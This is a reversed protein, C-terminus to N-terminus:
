LVIKDRLQYPVHECDLLDLRSFLSDATTALINNNNWLEELENVEGRFHNPLQFPPAGDLTQHVKHLYFFKQALPTLRSVIRDRDDTNELRFLELILEHSLQQYYEVSDNPHSLSSIDELTISKLPLPTLPLSPPTASDSSPHSIETTRETAISVTSNEPQGRQINLLLIGIAAAISFLSGIIIKKAM